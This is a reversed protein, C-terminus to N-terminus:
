TLATAIAGSPVQSALTLSSRETRIQSTTAPACRALSVPWLPRTVDTTMLGVLAQNAVLSSRETRIQSTVVWRSCPLSAIEVSQARDTAM